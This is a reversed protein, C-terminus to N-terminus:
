EKPVFLSIMDHDTFYAADQKVFVNIKMMSENVYVHDILSGRDFTASEILQHFGKSFLYQKMKKDESFNWNVDGMIATPKEINIWDDFQHLLKEEEFNVTAM